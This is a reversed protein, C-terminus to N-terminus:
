ESQGMKVYMALKEFMVCGGWHDARDWYGWKHYRPGMASGLNENMQDRSGPTEGNEEFPVCLVGAPAWKWNERSIWAGLLQRWPNYRGLVLVLTKEDVENWVEADKMTVGRVTAAFKGFKKCQWQWQDNTWARNPGDWRTDNWVIGQFGETQGGYVHELLETTLYRVLGQSAGWQDNGEDETGVGLVVIKNPRQKGLYTWFEKPKEDLKKYLINATNFIWQLSMERDVPTYPEAPEITCLRGRLGDPDNAMELNTAYLVKHPSNLTFRRIDGAQPEFYAYKPAEIFHSLNKYTWKLTGSLRTSHPATIKFPHPKPLLIERFGRAPDYARSEM